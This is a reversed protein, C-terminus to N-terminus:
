GKRQLLEAATELRHTSLIKISYKRFHEKAVTDAKLRTLYPGLLMARGRQSRAIIYFCEVQKSKKTPM